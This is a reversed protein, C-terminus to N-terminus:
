RVSRFRSTDAEISDSTTTGMMDITDYNAAVVAVPAAAANTVAVPIPTGAGNSVTVSGAVATTGIAKTPVPQADTNTVFIDQAKQAADAVVGTSLVLSCDAGAAAIGLVSRGKGM